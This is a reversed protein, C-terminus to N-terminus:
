FGFLICLFYFFCLLFFSLWTFLTIPPTMVRLSLAFAIVLGRASLSLWTVSEILYSPYYTLIGCGFVLSFYWAGKSLTVSTILPTTVSLPLVFDIGLGWGGQQLFAILIICLRISNPNYIPDNCGFVFSGCSLGRALVIKFYFKNSQRIFCFILHITKLYM